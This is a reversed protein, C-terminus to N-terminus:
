ADKGRSDIYGRTSIFMTMDASGSLRYRVQSTENTKVEVDSAERQNIGGAAAIVITFHTSDPAIDTQELATLIAYASATASGDSLHVALIAETIIGL